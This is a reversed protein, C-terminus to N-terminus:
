TRTARRGIEDLMVLSREDCESTLVHLDDMEQAPPVYRCTVARLPIYRDM